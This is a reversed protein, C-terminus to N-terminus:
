PTKRTLQMLWGSGSLTAENSRGSIAGQVRYLTGAATGEHTFVGSVIRSGGAGAPPPQSVPRCSPPMGYQEVIDTATAPQTVTVAVEVQKAKTDFANSRGVRVIKGLDLAGFGGAVTPCPLSPNAQVYAFVDLVRSSGFPVSLELSGGPKASGSLVGVPIGCSGGPFKPPVEPTTVNVIFCVNAWIFPGVVLSGVKESVPASAPFELKM